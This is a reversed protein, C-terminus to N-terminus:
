DRSIRAGRERMERMRSPAVPFTDAPGLGQLLVGVPPAAAGQRLLGPQAAADAVAEPEERRLADLYLKRVVSDPPAFRGVAILPTRENEVLVEATQDVLVEFDRSSPTDLRIAWLPPAFWVFPTFFRQTDTLRMREAPLAICIRFRRWCDGRSVYKPVNLTYHRWARELIDACADAGLKLRAMCEGPMRFTREDPVPPTQASAQTREGVIAVVAFALGHLAKRLSFCHTVTQLYVDV